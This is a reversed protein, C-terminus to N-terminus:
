TPPLPSDNGVRHDPPYSPNKCPQKLLQAILAGLYTGSTLNGPVPARGPRDRPTAAQGVEMDFFYPHAQVFDQGVMGSSALPGGTYVAIVEVYRGMLDLTVNLNEAYPGVGQQNTRAPPFKAGVVHAAARFLNERTSNRNGWVRVALVFSTRPM